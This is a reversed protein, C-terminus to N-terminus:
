RGRDPHGGPDRRACLDRIASTGTRLWTAGLLVLRAVRQPHAAAFAGCIATGWSYGILHLRAAGSAALVQAVAREVGAVAAATDLLPAHATAPEDMAAPREAHGYGPLDLCWVDHGAGAMVDMWSGGPLAHDFSLTAGYTAGHVFLVPTPRRAGAAFKRRLLMRAGAIASEIFQDAVTIIM